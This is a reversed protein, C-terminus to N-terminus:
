DWITQPVAGAKGYKWVYMESIVAYLFSAYYKTEQPLKDDWTIDNKIAAGVDLLLGLQKKSLNLLLNVIEKEHDSQMIQWTHYVLGLDKIEEGYKNRM